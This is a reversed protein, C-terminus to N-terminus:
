EPEPQSGRLWESRWEGFVEVGALLAIFEAIRALSQIM